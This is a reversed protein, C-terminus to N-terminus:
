GAKHNLFVFVACFILNEMLSYKLLNSWISLKKRVQECESLYKKLSLMKQAAYAQTKFIISIYYWLFLRNCLATQKCKM